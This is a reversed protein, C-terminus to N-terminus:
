VTSAAEPKYAAIFYSIKHINYMTWIIIYLSYILFVITINYYSSHIIYIFDRVKNCCIFWLSCICNLAGSSSHLAARFM